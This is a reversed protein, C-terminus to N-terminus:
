YERSCPNSGPIFHWKKSIKM